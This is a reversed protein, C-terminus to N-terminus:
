GKQEMAGSERPPGAETAANVGTHPPCEQGVGNVKLNIGLIELAAASLRLRGQVPLWEDPGIFEPMCTRARESCSVVNNQCSRSSARSVLGSAKEEEATACRNVVGSEKAARKPEPEPSLKTSPANTSPWITPM